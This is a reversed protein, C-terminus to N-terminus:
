PDYALAPGLWREVERIPLQKRRAYSEVQDAAVPAVTFYHAEPHGFMWGSVSSAPAMALSETLGIGVSEANLLSFLTRKETHDPCAPYGPAPRIGRYEDRLLTELPLSEDPAYWARRAERHVWEAFAEALRDALAKAMISGYTDHDAELEAVWADLGLGATVAFAGVYDASPAPAVYDALSLNAQEEGPKRRQQRLMCLRAAEATRSDDTWVVVDDGSSNAAFMGWVGSPRLRQNAVIDRLMTQANAFLERAAEGLEPHELVRPYAARLEWTAFFPSWDILEILEELSPSVRWVGCASPRAPPASVWDTTLRNAVADAYSLLETARREAHRARDAELLRENEAVFASRLESSLLSGVVGVARSADLVHVVPPDYHPAIKVATHRRSTTAGGILLPCQMNLRSMEKAVHVMEDLSPTILGSLGIIDAGEAAARELITAAPVMVGLDVIRYSNCALVVGVINKGIDHVDGKVTALVITGRSTAAGAAREEEMFPTLYAVAKKMARASKVVQPLFMKGVGFLDGVVQMGAMLPGEIVALPSGLAVRAEEADIEIHDAVGTVLAHEIRKDVPLSRWADDTERQRGDGAVTAAFSILRETADPRRDLIVDEVRELLEKLIEEYVELQGANVIGMDMGASIAHYLFAAHMAERVRDNGRFAFSLNSVGGSIKIGPCAAKIRRTAEIFDVAYRAHEEIGTGIALINPDFIVDTPAFGVEDVLIGFAREAIRVRDEIGTAQASEDFAMVLVAAGYRRILRAQARFVDEGEKLSISNVIAKGQVCKLGAELVRFDSSDIMVPVRAIDPEAAVLNLFRTMAEVSDLMGEDLNVDIVNAGGEVQQRAVKLAADYDGSKILRAFRASGTVNTREGVMTFNSGAAISYPELGSVRTASSPRVSPVRPAVDAVAAAIAAIHDPTTGCCGGVMNVWGQEAFERLIAATERPGEDYEGFANPLGANPYCSAYCSALGSLEEMYPRMERGGLACNIGVSWPRAHEMSTLFAELTQGSLTRGSADTITVSVLVPVDLGRAELEDSIAHLAAKANLTDFVTEVLLADVGGDLLGRTQELYAERVQDYSVARFGPDNVDPSLSLARNMPGLAGAVFRPRTPDSATVLDAARRAVRAAELNLEYSLEEMGYDAQSIRQANFSNTEIVDAGARLYELHIDEIVDPRTLVLLDNNGKLDSPWESFRQGRYDAETLGRRQIMTGMAGDLVVIRRSFLSQFPSSAM